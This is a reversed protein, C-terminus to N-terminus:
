ISYLSIPSFPVADRVITIRDPPIREYVLYEHEIPRNVTLCDTYRQTVEIGTTDVQLLTVDHQHFYGLQTRLIYGPNDTLFVTHWKRRLKRRTMGKCKDPILGETLISLVNENWTYHFLIM